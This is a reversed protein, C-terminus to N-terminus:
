RDFFGCACLAERAGTGPGNTGNASELETRDQALPQSTRPAKNTTRRRAADTIHVSAGRTTTAASNGV